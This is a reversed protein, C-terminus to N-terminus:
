HASPLLGGSSYECISPQCAGYSASDNTCLLQHHVLSTKTHRVKALYVQQAKIYSWGMLKGHLAAGANAVLATVVVPHLVGHYAKPVAEGTYCRRLLLLFLLLLLTLSSLLRLM